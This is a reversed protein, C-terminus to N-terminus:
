DFEDSYWNRIAKDIHKDRVKKITNRLYHGDLEFLRVIKDVFNNELQDFDEDMFLADAITHYLVKKKSMDLSLEELCNQFLLSKIEEFELKHFKLKNQFDQKEAISFVEDITYCEYIVRMLMKFDEESWGRRKIFSVFDNFESKISM